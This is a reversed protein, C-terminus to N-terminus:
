SKSEHRFYNLLIYLISFILGILFGIFCVIVRSPKSKKYPVHPSDIIKVIYDEKIESLMITRLQSEILSDIADTISKVSTSKRENLLFEVAENAEILDRKRIQTNLEKIMIELLDKAFIPSFHEISLTIYGSDQDHSIRLIEEIFFEHSEIYSPKSSLPYNVKRTWVSKDVDYIRSDYNIKDNRFDYSEAAFIDRLMNDNSEILYKFFDKSRLTEIALDTKNESAQIPLNVGVMSALGAYQSLSSNQSENSSVALLSSSKYYDELSLSYFVSAASFISTIVLLLYKRNWIITILDYFDLSYITDKNVEPNNM